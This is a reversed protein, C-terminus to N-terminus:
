MTTQITEVTKNQKTKNEQSTKIQFLQLSVSFNCFYYLSCVTHWKGLNVQKHVKQEMQEIM